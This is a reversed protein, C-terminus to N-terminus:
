MVHLHVIDICTLALWQEQQMAISARASIPSEAKVFEDALIAQDDRVQAPM